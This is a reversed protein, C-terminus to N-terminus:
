SVKGQQMSRTRVDRARRILFIWSYSGQKQSLNTDIMHAYCGLDLFNSHIPETPSLTQHRHHHYHHQQSSINVHLYHKVLLSM